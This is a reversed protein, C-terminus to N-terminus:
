IMQLYHYKSKEKGIQIRKVEEQQRIGRALVEPEINFLYPSHATERLNREM